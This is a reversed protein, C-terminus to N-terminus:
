EVYGLDRLRSMMGEDLDPASLKESKTKEGEQLVKDVHIHLEEVVRPFESAINHNEGPDTQLNFLRPTLPQNSDWIYKYEETRVAVIHWSDRWMESIAAQPQFQDRGKGLLSAFSDGKMGDPPNCHCLDLITPMLDIIQVQEDIVVGGGIGPTKMILPVKLIEDYLNNEWHGWRGHELFEEGHDSLLVIITNQDLGSENLYDFLKGLQVDTYAVAREYLDIYHEQQEPSIVAGNWNAHHLHALDRWAQAIQDPQELNEELHYPWHVDMYHAWIFFPKRTQDIRQCVMNTLRDASSYVNAPRTQIDLFRSFYHTVPQQLVLQGGKIRRLLPDKEEPLLDTFSDFGFDYGYNKSLLPSTSFGATTYGAERM